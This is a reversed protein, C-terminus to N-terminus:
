TNKNTSSLNQIKTRMKTTMIVILICSSFCKKQRPYSQLSRRTTLSLNQPKPSLLTVVKNDNSGSGSQILTTTSTLNWHIFRKSTYLSYNYSPRLFSISWLVEVFLFYCSCLFVPFLYYCQSKNKTIHIM